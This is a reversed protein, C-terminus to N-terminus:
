DEGFDSGAEVIDAIRGLDEFDAFDIVIKGKKGSQSVTVRTDLAKVFREQADLIAAPTKKGTAAKARDSTQPNALENRTRVADEIGRVTVGEKGVKEALQLQFGQDETGLLARAHGESIRDEILLRQVKPQLQLLRLMNSVGARSKGVRKAVEDHTMSFDDILQKYASAEDIANLDKRHLNEVLAEQLSRIDEVKKVIVPVTKLGAKKSARLRREGAILEYGGEDNQRVLLPQLVGLEKISEALPVLAEEDFHTRPQFANPKVQEIPVERLVDERLDIIEEKTTPTSPTTVVPDSSPILAGLGRGLGSRRTAV